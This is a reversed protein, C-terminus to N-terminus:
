SVSGQQYKKIIISMQDDDNVATPYISNAPLSSTTKHTTLHHSHSFKAHQYFAEIKSLIEKYHGGDIEVVSQQYLSGRKQKPHLIHNNPILYMHTDINRWRVPSTLCCQYLNYLLLGLPSLHAWLTNVHHVPADGDVQRLHGPAYLSLTYGRTHKVGQVPFLAYVTSQMVRTLLRSAFVPPVQAFYPQIMRSEFLKCTGSDGEQKFPGRFSLEKLPYTQPKLTGANLFNVFFTKVQAKKVQCVPLALSVPPLQRALKTLGAVEKVVTDTKQQCFSNIYSINMM